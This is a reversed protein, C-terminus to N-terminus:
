WISLPQGVRIIGGSAQLGAPATGHQM